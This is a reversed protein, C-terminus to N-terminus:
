GRGRRKRAAGLEARERARKLASLHREWRALAARKEDAYGHREYHKAQVGHVGHSLLQARVDRPVGLRQLATEATRRVDRLQAVGEGQARADRLISDRAAGEFIRAAVDGCTQASTPREGDLSFVWEGAVSLRESLLRVAAASLPLVHLRPEARRGKPDRLTITRATLDVDGRKVRLLQTPRQGALLMALRVADRAPSAPLRELQLAFYGLEGDTLVRDRARNYKALSRAPTAAVPNHKVRFALFAAPVDPDLGASAALAYAARMYARLVAARRGHGLDRVRRIIHAVDEPAIDAAARAALEPHAAYVHRRFVNRVDRASPKGANALHDAYADLLVALSGRQAELTARAAEEQRAREAEREKRAEDALLERLDVERARAERAQTGYADAERRAEALSGVRLPIMHQRRDRSYRFYWLRAAGNGWRVVLSGDGWDPRRESLKTGAPRKAAVQAETLLASGRRKAM